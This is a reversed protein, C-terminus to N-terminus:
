DLDGFMTGNMIHLLNGILTSYYSQEYSAGNKPYDVEFFTTDKFDPDSTV